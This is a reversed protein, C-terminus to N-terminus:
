PKCTRKYVECKPCPNTQCHEGMLEKFEFESIHGADRKIKIMKIIFGNGRKVEAKLREKPIETFTSSLEHYDRIGYNRLAYPPFGGTEQDIMKEIQKKYKLMYPYKEALLQFQQHISFIDGSLVGKVGNESDIGLIRLFKLVNDLGTLGDMLEKSSYPIFM